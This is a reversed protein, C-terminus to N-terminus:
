QKELIWSGSRTGDSWIFSGSVEQGKPGLYGTATGTQGDIVAPGFSFVAGLDSESVLVGPFNYATEGHSDSVTLQLDYANAASTSLAITASLGGSHVRHQSGAGVYSWAGNWTGELGCMGLSNFDYSLPPLVGGGPFPGTGPYTTSTTSSPIYVTPAGAVQITTQINLPFSNNISNVAKPISNQCFNMLSNTSGSLASGASYGTSGAEYATLDLECASVIGPALPPAVYAAAGALAYCSATILTQANSFTNFTNSINVFIPNTAVDECLSVASETQTNSIEVPAPIVYQGTPYATGGGPLAFNAPGSVTRPPFSLNPSIIYLQVNADLLPQGCRSVQAVFDNPLLANMDLSTAAARTRTTSPVGKPARAIAPVANLSVPEPAALSTGDPLYAIVNATTATQWDFSLLTGDSGFVHLLNGSDDFEYTAGSGNSLQIQVTQEGTPMGTSDKTGWLDIQSGDSSTITAYQSDTSDPYVTVGTLTPQIANAVNINELSAATAGASDTV